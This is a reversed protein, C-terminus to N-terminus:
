YNAGRESTLFRKIFNFNFNGGALSSKMIKCTNDSLYVAVTKDAMYAALLLSTIRVQTIQIYHHMPLAMVVKLIAAPSSRRYASM